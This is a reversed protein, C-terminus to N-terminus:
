SNDCRAEAFDTVAASTFQIARVALLIRDESLKIGDCPVHSTVWIVLPQQWKPDIVKFNLQEAENISSKL